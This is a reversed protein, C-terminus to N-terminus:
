RQHFDEPLEVVSFSQTQPRNSIKFTM